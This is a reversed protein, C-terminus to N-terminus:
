HAFSWLIRLGLLNYWKLFETLIHTVDFEFPFHSALLVNCASYFMDYQKNHGTM